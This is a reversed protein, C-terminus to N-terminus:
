KDKPYTRLSFTDSEIIKEIAKLQKELYKIKNQLLDIQRRETDLKINLQKILAQERIRASQPNEVNNIFQYEPYAAHLLSESRESIAILNNDIKSLLAISLNVKLSMDTLTMKHKKLFERVTIQKREMIKENTMKKKMKFFKM